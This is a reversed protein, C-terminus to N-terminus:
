KVSRAIRRYHPTNVHKLARELEATVHNLTAVDTQLLQHKEEGDHQRTKLDMVLVPEVHQRLSRSAVKVDLRWSFDRYRPLQLSMSSLVHRIEDRNELYLDLLLKNLEPSFQLTLFSDHFDMESIKLKSCEILLYMIGEVAAKIDQASAELKKAATQYVKPNIGNHLFQLAITCFEQVLEIDLTNLFKLHEKHEPSLVILM